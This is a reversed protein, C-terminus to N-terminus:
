GTVTDPRNTPQVVATQLVLVQDASAATTDRISAALRSTTLEFGM